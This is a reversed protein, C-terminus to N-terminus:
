ANRRVLAYKVGSMNEVGDVLGLLMPLDRALRKDYEKFKSDFEKFNDLEEWACLCAHKKARPNKCGRLFRAEDLTMPTWGESAMFAMWREHEVVALWPNDSDVAQELKEKLEALLKGSEEMQIPTAKWAPLIDYGLLFLKAKIHLANARDSRLNTESEWYRKRVQSESISSSDFAAEYACHVNMALKELESDVLASSYFQNDGGFAFLNYNVSKAKEEDMKDRNKREKTFVSFEPLLENKSKDKVYVAIFPRTEFAPNKGIFHARVFLATDINLEDDDHCVAVYNADSCDNDLAAKFSASKAAASIFKIDYRGSFLEPCEFRLESEFLGCNEDIAAIKLKFGNGLQGCCVASKLVEKAMKSAGAIVLSITKEGDGLAGHLPRDYFLSNACFRNKDVIQVPLGKKDISGFALPAAKQESFVFIKVFRFDAEGYKKVFGEILKKAGFINKDQDCSIEFYLQERKASAPKLLYNAESEEKLVFGNGKAEQCLEVDAGSGVGFFVCLSKKNSREALSQALLLSNENLESFYYCPRFLRGRLFRFGDRLSLFVSLLLGAWVLPTLFCLASFVWSFGGLATEAAPILSDFDADMTIMRAATMVDLTLTVPTKEAVEEAPVFPLSRWLVFCDAAFIGVGLCLFFSIKKKRSVAGWVVISLIIALLAPLVCKLFEGLLTM